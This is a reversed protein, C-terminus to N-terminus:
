KKIFLDNIFKGSEDLKDIIIQPYFQSDTEDYKASGGVSIIVNNNSDFNITNVMANKKAIVKTYCISHTVKDVVIIKPNPFGKYGASETYGGIIVFKEFENIHKIKIDNVNLSWMKELKKDFFDLKMGDSVYYYNVFEKSFPLYNYGGSSRNEKMVEDTESTGMYFFSNSKVSISFDSKAICIPLVFEWNNSNLFVYIFDDNQLVNSISYINTEYPFGNKNGKYKMYINGGKQGTLNSFSPSIKTLDIKDFKGKDKYDYIFLYTKFDYESKGIFSCIENGLKPGGVLFTEIDDGSNLEFEYPLKYTVVSPIDSNNSLMVQNLDIEDSNRHSFFITNFQSKNSNLDVVDIEKQNYYFVEGSMKRERFLNITSGNSRNTSILQNGFSDMFGDSQLGFILSVLSNDNSIVGRFVKLNYSFEKQIPDAYCFINHNSLKTQQNNSSVRSEQDEDYDIYSNIERVYKAEENRKEIEESFRISNNELLYLRNNDFIIYNYNVYIKNFDGLLSYDINLETIEDKYILVRNNSSFYLADNFVFPAGGYRARYNIEETKGTNLDYVFSKNNVYFIKGNFFNIHSVSGSGLSNYVTYNLGDLLEWSKGLDHSRYVNNTTITKDSIIYGEDTTFIYLANLYSKLNIVAYNNPIEIEKWISLDESYYLKYVSQDTCIMYFKNLLVYPIYFYNDASEETNFVLLDPNDCKNKSNIRDFNVWDKSFYFKRNGNNTYLVIDNGKLFLVNNEQNERVFICNDHGELSCINGLDIKEFTLGKNFSVYCGEENIGFISDNKCVVDIFKINSYYLYKDTQIKQKFDIIQGISCFCFCFCFFFLVEVKQIKM